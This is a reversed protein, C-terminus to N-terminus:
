TESTQSSNKRCSFFWEGFVVAFVALIPILPIRYRGMGHVLVHVAAFYGFIAYLPILKRWNRLGIILGIGAALLFLASELLLIIKFAATAYRGQKIVKGFGDRIGYAESWSMPVCMQYARWFTQKAYDGPHSLFYRGTAPPKWNPEHRPIWIVRDYEKSAQEPDDYPFPVRDPRVMFGHYAMAAYHTMISGGQSAQKTRIQGYTLYRHGYWPTIAILCGVAMLSSLLIARRFPKCLLYGMALAVPLMIAVNRTLFTLGCALGTAIAWAPSIRECSLSYCLVTLTLLPIYLAETMLSNAQLALPPSIAVLLAAFLSYKEGVFRRAIFYSMLVVALSMVIQVPIVVMRQYGVTALFGSLFIPYLPPLMTRPNKREDDGLTYDVGAALDEAFGLYQKTDGTFPPQQPRPEIAFVVLHLVAGVILIATLARRSNSNEHNM